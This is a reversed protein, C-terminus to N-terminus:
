LGLKILRAVWGGIFPHRTLRVLFDLRWRLLDKPDKMGNIARATQPGLVGDPTLGLKTQVRGIVSPGSHVLWDLLWEVARSDDLRDLAFREYFDRRYIGRADDRSLTKINLDPYSRKSIGFKTEGGPDQPHNVYGGERDILEDILRNVDHESLM